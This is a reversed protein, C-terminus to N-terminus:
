GVVLGDPLESLFRRFATAPLPPAILFGQASDCGAETLLRRQLETEVGEAVATVGLNHALAVITRTITGSREDHLDGVFRRDIKLTHLPLSHLYSLSSYGTGFDDIAVRVGWSDLQRLRDAASRLDEVLLAETIELELRHPDLATEAITKGLRDLFERRNFEAPSINVSIRADSPFLRQATWQALDDAVTRLVLDSIAGISGTAEATPIFVSPAVPGREPHHWRVLAEASVLTGLRLDIIPQYYVELERRAAARRLERELDIRDHHRIDVRLDHFRFQDRGGARSRRLARDAAAMLEPATTADDPSRAAGISATLHLELDDHLIPRAVRRQVEEALARLRGDFGQGAHDSEVVLLFEDVGVRGVEVRRETLGRLRSAIEVLVVDGTTPGFADNIARFGDLDVHLVGVRGGGQAVRALIEALRETIRERSTLDTLVDTHMLRRLSLEADIVSTLDTLALVAGSDARAPDILGVRLRVWTRHGQQDGIQVTRGADDTGPDRGCLVQHLPSEIAPILAASEDWLVWPPDLANRGVVREASTRLLRCLAPNAATIVGAGSVLAVGETLVSLSGASLTPQDSAPTVL